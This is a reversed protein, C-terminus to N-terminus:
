FSIWKNEVLFRNIGKESIGYKINMIKKECFLYSLMNEGKYKVIVLM